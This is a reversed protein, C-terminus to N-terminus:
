SIHKGRCFFFFFVKMVPFLRFRSFFCVSLWENGGYRLTVQVLPLSSRVLQRSCWMREASRLIILRYCFLRSSTPPALLRGLLTPGDGSQCWWPPAKNKRGGKCGVYKNAEYWFFPVSAASCVCESGRGAPWTTTTTALLLNYKIQWCKRGDLPMSNWHCQLGIFSWCSISQLWSTRYLLCFFFVVSQSNVSEYSLEPNRTSATWHSSLYLKWKFWMVVDVHQTNIESSVAPLSAFDCDNERNM